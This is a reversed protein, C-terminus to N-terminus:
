SCDLVLTVLFATLGSGGAVIVGWNTVRRIQTLFKNKYFENVHLVYLQQFDQRVSVRLDTLTRHQQVFYSWDDDFSAEAASRDTSTQMAYWRVKLTKTRPLADRYFWKWTTTKKKFPYDFNTQNAFVILVVTGAALTGLSLFLLSWFAPRYSVDNVLVATLLAVGAAVMGGALTAFSSRRTEAYWIRPNVHEILQLITAQLAKVEEDSLGNLPDDVASSQPSTNM